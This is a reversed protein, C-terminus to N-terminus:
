VLRKRFLVCVFSLITYHFPHHFHVSELHAFFLIFCYDLRLFLRSVFSDTFPQTDQLHSIFPFFYPLDRLYRPHSDVAYALQAPSIPLLPQFFEHSVLMFRMVSQQTFLLFRFDQAPKLDFCPFLDRCPFDFLCQIRFASPVCPVHIHIIHQFPM